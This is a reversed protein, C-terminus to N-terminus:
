NCAPCGVPCTTGPYCAPGGVPGGQQVVCCVQGDSCRPSCTQAECLGNNCMPTAGTCATGCKGCNLPDNLFNKCAGGCCQLGLGCAGGDCKGGGSDATADSTGTDSTGTDGTTVDSGADSPGPSTTTGCAFLGFALLVPAFPFRM